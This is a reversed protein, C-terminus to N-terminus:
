YTRLTVEANTITFTNSATTGVAVARIRFTGSSPIIFPFSYNKSSTHATDEFILRAWIGVNVDFYNSGSKEQLIFQITTPTNAAALTFRFFATTYGTGTQDASNASTTTNNYTTNLATLTVSTAEIPRDKTMFYGKTDFYADVRDGAASVASPESIPSNAKGGIKHPKGGDTADHAVVGNVQLGGDSVTAITASVSDVIICSPIDFVGFVNSYFNPLNDPGYETNRVYGITNTGQPLAVDTALTVRQTSSSVTGSGGAVGVQGAILNVKARDSEDWDDLVSLSSVAPDDSALTVRPTNTSVAGAGATVGVQGAIINVKARDSEDWDDLVSLSTVAPDDSALTVRPTNVAVAGAGATIGAQGAILNVKARDSEDWDDMVSTSTAINSLHTTQTQQEALTSAGTPLSFTGTVALTQDNAIVVALSNASNTQGVVFKNYLFLLTGETSWGGTGTGTPTPWAM